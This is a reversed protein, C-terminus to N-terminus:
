DVSPAPGEFTFNEFVAKAQQELAEKEEATIGPRKMAKGLRVLEKQARDIAQEQPRNFNDSYTELGHWVQDCEAQTEAVKQEVIRLMEQQYANPHGGAEDELQIKAAKWARLENKMITIQPPCNAGYSKQVLWFKELKKIEGKEAAFQAETIEGNELKKRNAKQKREITAEAYRKGFGYATFYNQLREDSFDTSNGFLDIDHRMNNVLNEVDKQASNRAKERDASRRFRKANARRDYGTVDQRKPWTTRNSMQMQLTSREAGEESTVNVGKASLANIRAQKNREGQEDLLRLNHTMRKRGSKKSSERIRQPQQQLHLSTFASRFVQDAHVLPVDLEVFEEDRLRHINAELPDAAREVEIPAAPAANNQEERREEEHMPQQLQQQQQEEQTEEDM